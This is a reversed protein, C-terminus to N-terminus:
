EEPFEFEGKKIKDILDKVYEAQFPEYGCLMTYLVVGLSWVDVKEDYLGIDFVEPATYAITGTYTLMKVEPHFTGYKSKSDVFKSINFDTLKM